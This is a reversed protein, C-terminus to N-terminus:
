LDEDNDIGLVQLDVWDQWSFFNSNALDELVTDKIFGKKLSFQASFVPNM